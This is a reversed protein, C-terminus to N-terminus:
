ISAISSDIAACVEEQSSEFQEAAALVEDATASLRQRGEEGARESAFRAQEPTVNPPPFPLIPGIMQQQQFETAAMNYTQLARQAAFVSQAIQHQQDSPLATLVEPNLIFTAWTSAPLQQPPLSQRDWKSLLGQSSASAQRCDTLAANLIALTSRESDHEVQVRDLWFALFVGAFTGVLGVILNAVNARAIQGFHRVWGLLAAGRLAGVM